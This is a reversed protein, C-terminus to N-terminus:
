LYFDRTLQQYEPSRPADTSELTLHDTRIERIDRIIIAKTFNTAKEQVRIVM